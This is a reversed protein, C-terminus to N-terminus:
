LQVGNIHERVEGIISFDDLTKEVIALDDKDIIFIMGIGMNFTKFMEELEINGERQMLQFIEPIVWSEQVIRVGLGEPLIRPINEIFGGGTVHVIGKIDVVENLQNFEDVYIRTPKLLAEGLRCGLADITQDTTYGLKDFFLKRVLSYGNSHIGNSSLGVLIDGDKITEGTIINEKDVIGVAFGALDYENADYFDPMEATEGGLLPIHSLKCGEAIGSVLSNVKEPSIEGTAIYDLFFLPQAGQCLIDNVCMAVLDIGVTDHRDELFAVKLKTGVGDTGSVLVPQKFDGTLQFLGGFSGLEGLVNENYTGKVTKKMLDVAKNARDIDVGSSAYTMKEDSLNIV